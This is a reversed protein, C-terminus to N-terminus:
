KEEISKAVKLIIQDFCQDCADITNVVNEQTIKIFVFITKGNFQLKCKKQGVARTNLNMENDKCIDCIVINAM